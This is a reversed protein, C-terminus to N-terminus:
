GVRVRAVDEDPDHTPDAGAPPTPRPADAVLAAVWLAVVRRRRDYSWRVFGRVM